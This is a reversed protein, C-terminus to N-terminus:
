EQGLAKLTQTVEGVFLSTNFVSVRDLIRQIRQPTIVSDVLDTGGQQYYKTGNRAISRAILFALSSLSIMEGTARIGKQFIWQEIAKIPPFKGPKRGYVLQETYKAGLLVGGLETKQTELSDIWKGSSEMGLAKHKAILDEKIAELEELIIENSTM